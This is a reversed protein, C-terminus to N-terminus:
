DLIFPFKCWDIYNQNYDDVKNEEKHDKEENNIMILAQHDVFHDQQPMEPPIQVYQIPQRNNKTSKSKKNVQQLIESMNTTKNKQLHSADGLLYHNKSGSNSKGLYQTNQLNQVRQAPENSDPDQDDPVSYRSQKAVNQGRNINEGKREEKKGRKSPTGQNGYFDIQMAESVEEFQQIMSSSLDQEEIIDNFHSDQQLRSSENQFNEETQMEFNSQDVEEEETESEYIGLMKKHHVLVQSPLGEIIWEHMLADFPTMRKEPNWELCKRIFDLFSESQCM